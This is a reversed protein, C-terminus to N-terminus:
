LAMSLAFLALLAIATLVIWRPRWESRARGDEQSLYEGCEPCQISEEWIEARCYPCLITPEDDDEGYEELDDDEDDWEDDPSNWTERINPM